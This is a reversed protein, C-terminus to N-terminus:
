IKEVIAEIKGMSFIFCLLVFELIPIFSSGKLITYKTKMSCTDM